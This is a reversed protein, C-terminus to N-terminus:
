DTGQLCSIINAYVALVTLLLIHPFGFGSSKLLNHPESFFASIETTIAEMLLLAAEELEELCLVSVALFQFFFM